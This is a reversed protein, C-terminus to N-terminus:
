PSPIEYIQTMSIRVVDLPNVVVGM